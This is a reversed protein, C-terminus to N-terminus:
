AFMAGLLIQPLKMHQAPEKTMSQRMLAPPSRSQVGTSDHDTDVSVTSKTTLTSLFNLTPDPNSLFQLELIPFHV